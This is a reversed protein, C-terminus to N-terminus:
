GTQKPRQPLRLSQMFTQFSTAAEPLQADLRVRGSETQSTGTQLKEQSFESTNGANLDPSMLRFLLRQGPCCGPQSQAPKYIPIAPLSEVM